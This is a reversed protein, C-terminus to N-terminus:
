VRAEAALRDVERAGVLRAVAAAEGDGEVVDGVGVGFFLTMGAYAPIWLAECRSAVCSPVSSGRRRPSSKRVRSHEVSTQYSTCSLASLAMVRSFCNFSHRRVHFTSSM